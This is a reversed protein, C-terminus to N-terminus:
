RDYRIRLRQPLLPDLRQQISRLGCSIVVEAVYSQPSGARGPTWNSGRLQQSKTSHSYRVMVPVARWAGPQGHKRPMMTCEAPKHLLAQLDRGSWSHQAITEDDFLLDLLRSDADTCCAAVVFVLWTLGNLNAGNSTLARSPVPVLFVAASLM